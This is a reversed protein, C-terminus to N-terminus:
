SKDGWRRKLYSGRGSNGRYIGLIIPKAGSDPCKCQLVPIVFLLMVAKPFYFELSKEMMNSDWYLDQVGEHGLCVVPTTGVSWFSAKKCIYAFILMELATNGSLIKLINM